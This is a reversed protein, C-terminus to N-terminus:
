QLAARSGTATGAMLADILARQSPDLSQVPQMQNRVLLDALTANTNGISRSAGRAAGGVLPPILAAAAGGGGFQQVGLGTTTAMAAINQPTLRLPSLFNAVRSLVEQTKDGRVVRLILEQEEPSWMTSFDPDNAIRRFQTVTARYAANPDSNLTPNVANSAVTRARELATARARTGWLRRGEQFSALAQEPSVGTASTFASAPLGNLQEDLQRIMQTAIRTDNTNGTAALDRLEQRFTELDDLTSGINRTNLDRVFGYAAPSLNENVRAGEATVILTNKISDAINPNVSVGAARGADYEARSAAGIQGADPVNEQVRRAVGPGLLAGTGLGAVAGVGAGGAAGLLREEMTDGQGAGAIGGYTGGELGSRAMISATTPRAGALFSVGSKAALPGLLMSALMETYGAANPDNERAYDLSQNFSNRAENYGGGFGRQDFIGGIGGILGALEDGFNLTPGQLGAAALGRNLLPDHVPSPAPDLPDGPRFHTGEANQTYAAFDSPLGPNPTGPAQGAPMRALIDTMPPAPGFAAQGAAVASTQPQPQTARMVADRVINPDTGDPFRLLRGDPLRIDM